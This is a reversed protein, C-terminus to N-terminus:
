TGDEGCAIKQSGAAVPIEDGFEELLYYVTHAAGSMSNEERTRKRMCSVLEQTGSADAKGRETLQLGM